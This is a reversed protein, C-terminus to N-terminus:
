DKSLKGIGKALESIAGSVFELHSRSYHSMESAFQRSIEAAKEKLSTLAGETIPELANRLRAQSEAEQQVSSVRIGNLAVKAAEKATRELEERASDLRERLIMEFQRDIRTCAAEIDVSSKEVLQECIKGLEQERKTLDAAVKRAEDIVPASQEKLRAVIRGVSDKRATEVAGELRERASATLKESLAELERQRAEMRALAQQLEGEIKKTWQAHRARASEEGVHNMRKLSEEIWRDTQSSSADALIQRAEDRLGARFDDLLAGAKERVAADAVEALMKEMQQQFGGILQGVPPTGSSARPAPETTRPSAAKGSEENTTAPSKEPRLVAVPKARQADAGSNRAANFQAWDSPPSDIGWINGPADLEIATQYLGGAEVPRKTWKVHGRASVPKSDPGKGNMELLVSANPLVEHKSEYKCGHASITITSVEEQYPGRFSDVGAVALVIARNVRTSRRAPRGSDIALSSNSM